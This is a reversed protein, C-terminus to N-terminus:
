LLACNLWKDSKMRLLLPSEEGDESDWHDGDFDEQFFRGLENRFAAVLEDRNVICQISVNAEDYKEHVVFFMNEASDTSYATLCTTIGEEDIEIQVPLSGNDVLKGWEVLQEFPPFVNSLYIKRESKGSTIVMNAWGYTEMTIKVMVPQNVVDPRVAFFTNVALGPTVLRSRAESDSFDALGSANAFILMPTPLAIGWQMDGLAENFWETFMYYNEWIFPQFETAVAVGDSKEQVKVVYDAQGALLKYLAKSKTRDFEIMNAPPYCQKSIILGDGLTRALM